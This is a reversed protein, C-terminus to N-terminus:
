KDDRINKNKDWNPEKRTVCCHNEAVQRNLNIIKENEENIKKVGDKLKIIRRLVGFFAAAIVLSFSLLFIVEYTM